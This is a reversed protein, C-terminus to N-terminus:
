GNAARVLAAKIPVARTSASVVFHMADEEQCEDCSNAHTQKNCFHGVLKSRKGTHLVFQTM